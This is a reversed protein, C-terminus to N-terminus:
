RVLPEGLGPAGPGPPSPCGNGDREGKTMQAVSAPRFAPSPLKRVWCLALLFHGVSVHLLLRTFLPEQVGGAGVADVGSLGYADQGRRCRRGERAQSGSGWPGVPLWRALFPGLCLPWRQVGPKTGPLDPKKLSPAKQREQERERDKKKPTHTHTHTHTHSLVAIM